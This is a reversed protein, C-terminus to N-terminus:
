STRTDAEPGPDRDEWCWWCGGVCMMLVLLLLVLVLQYEMSDGWAADQPRLNGTWM